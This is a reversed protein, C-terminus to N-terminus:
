ADIRRAALWVAAVAGAAAATRSAVLSINEVFVGLSWLSALALPVLVLGFLVASIQAFRAVGDPSSRMTIIGIGMLVAVYPRVLVEVLYSWPVRSDDQFFAITAGINTCWVYALLSVGILHEPRLGVNGVLRDIEHYRETEISSMANNYSEICEMDLPADLEPDAICASGAM